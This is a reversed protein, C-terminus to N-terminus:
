ADEQLQKGPKDYPIDCGNEKVIVTNTHGGPRKDREILTIEAHNRLQWAAGMGAIGSGIIGIRERM